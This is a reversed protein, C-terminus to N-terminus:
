WLASSERFSGMHALECTSKQRQTFVKDWQKGDKQPFESRCLQCANGSAAAGQQDLPSTDPSESSHALSWDRARFGFDQKLSSCASAVWSWIHLFLVRRWQKNSISILVFITCFLISTGWFSLFLVVVHDLLGLPNPIYGSSIFVPDQLHIHVKLMIWLLFSISIAYTYNLPHTSLSFTSYITSYSEAKFFFSIKGNTIFHIPRSSM